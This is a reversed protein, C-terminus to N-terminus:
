ARYLPFFEAISGFGQEQRLSVLWNYIEENFCKKGIAFVNESQRNFAKKFQYLSDEQSGVGGGLHFTQFGNQCGWLAAEYLLYNTAAFDRYSRVSGSLHYHMRRNCLLIIAMAIVSDQHVAYFVISNHRLDYLISEYFDDKFYYYSDAGVADMTQIYIEKFKRFLDPSRGWFVKVGLKEAKRIANRNKSSFGAWIHEPSHLDIHVTKGLKQVEYMETLQSFNGILPHFRVFESVINNELCYSTYAEDLERLDNGEILFGGYGYPTSLDFWTNEPIKGAFYRCCAIDRKMVVNMARTRGNDFYILLPEGDGHIWFGKVYQHLYYVDCQEFASVISNWVDMETFSVVSLM